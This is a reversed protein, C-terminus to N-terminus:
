AAQTEAGRSKALDAMANNLGAMWTEIWEPLPESPKSCGGEALLEAPSVRTGRLGLFRALVYALAVLENGQTFVHEVVIFRSDWGIVRTEVTFRSLLRLSKRFQITEARVL